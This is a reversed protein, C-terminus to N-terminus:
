TPWRACRRRRGPRPRLPRQHGQARRRRRLRGRPGRARRRASRMAHEGLAFLGRRNYLGTLGDALSLMRLQEERQRLATEAAKQATIDIIYGEYATAAGDADRVTHTFDRVWHTQARPTSSATSRRGATSAPGRSTTATRTSGASTRRTWSARRVRAPRQHVGGARVRLRQRQPLRVAGHGDDDVDWRFTVVPGAVLLDRERQLEDEAQKRRAIEDTLVREREELLAVMASFAESFEGMFDIRQTYDGRAIEQTQRTLQRLRAHMQSSRRRWGTTPRHAASGLARRPLAPGRLPRDGGAPAAAPQRHPRAPARGSLVDGRGRLPRRAGRARGHAGRDIEGLCTALDTRERDEVHPTVALREERSRRDGRLARARQGHRRGDDGTEEVGTPPLRCGAPPSPIGGAAAFLPVLKSSASTLGLHRALTSAAAPAAVSSAPQPMRTAASVTATLRAARAAVMTAEAGADGVGEAAGEGDTAGASSTGEATRRGSWGGNRRGAQGSAARLREGGGRPAHGGRGGDAAHEGGEILEDRAHHRAAADGAGGHGDDCAVGDMYRAAEPQPLHAARVRDVVVREELQARHRARVRRRHEGREGSLALEAPVLRHPPRPGAEPQAVGPRRPLRREAVERGPAAAQRRVGAVLQEREAVTAGLHQAPQTVQTRGGAEAGLERGLVPHDRRRGGGGLAGRSARPRAQHALTHELRDAVM